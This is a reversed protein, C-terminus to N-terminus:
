AQQRVVLDFHIGRESLDSALRTLEIWAKATEAMVAAAQQPDPQGPIAKLYALREAERLARTPNDLGVRIATATLEDLEDPSMDPSTM